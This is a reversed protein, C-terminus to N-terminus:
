LSLFLFDFNVHNGNVVVVVLLTTDSTNTDSNTHTTNTNTIHQHIRQNTRISMQIETNRLLTPDGEVETASRSPFPIFDVTTLLSNLELSVLHLLRRIITMILKWCLGVSSVVGRFSSELKSPSLEAKESTVLV